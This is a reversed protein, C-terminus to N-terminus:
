KDSTRKKYACLFVNAVNSKVLSHLVVNRLGGPNLALVCGVYVVGGVVISLVLLLVGDGHSLIFLVVAMILAAILLRFIDGFVTPLRFAWRGLIASLVIAVGQAIVSAYVAGMLGYVPIFWLNLVVNLLAALSMVVFYMRTRKGLYFALDFYYTRTGDLLAAFAFWPILEIGAAQFEEGLFIKSINPALIIFVTAVPLGIGLLLIANKRLQVRAADSGVKELTRLILPYAALNVMTMLVGIAQQVLGQGAAYLGTASESIMGALMFRDTSSIIVASAFSATLPLGYALLKKVLVWNFHWEKFSLWQDWASWLGAVFFGILLGILAGYSNYGLLVLVVGLGLAVVAKLMSILGYRVPALRSRVLELNITLWAQAWVLLIGISILGSWESENWILVLLMGGAGVLFSVFIFGSLIANLVDTENDQYQPLFRLLSASLWYYMIANCMVAGTVVLAYLGYAEPSLLRTYIIITAFGVLGPVGRALLYTASHRLLM